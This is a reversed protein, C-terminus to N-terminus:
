AIPLEVTFASGRGATSDVRWTGGHAEVIWGAIALGLGAGGQERSRAKDVRYFRDFIHPLDTEPIGLGNDKVTVAAVRDVQRVSVEVHGGSPTYKVANDILVLVLRRLAQRDGNVRVSGRPLSVEFTMGKVRALVEAEACAEQVSDVLDMAATRLEAGDADARAILLLNDVLQSTRELEAVIQELAERQDAPESGDRLAVEATTRM